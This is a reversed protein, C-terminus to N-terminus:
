THSMINVQSLAEKALQARLAKIESDKADLAKGYAKQTVANAQFFINCLKQNHRFNYRMKKSEYVVTEARSWVDFGPSHTHGLTYCSSCKSGSSCLPTM